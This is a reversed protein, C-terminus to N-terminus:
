RIDGAEFWVQIRGEPTEPDPVYSIRSHQIGSAQLVSLVDLASSRDKLHMFRVQTMDNAPRGRTGAISAVTRIFFGKEKLAAALQTAASYQNENAYLIHIRPPVPRPLQTTATAKLAADIGARLERSAVEPKLDELLRHTNELERQSRQHQRELEKVQDSFRKLENEKATAALELARNQELLADRRVQLRQVGYWIAALVAFSIVIAIGQVAFLWRLRKWDVNPTEMTTM